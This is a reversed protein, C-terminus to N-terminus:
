GLGDLAGPMNVGFDALNSTNKFKCTLSEDFNTLM